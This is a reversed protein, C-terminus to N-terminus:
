PHDIIYQKIAQATLAVGVVSKDVHVVASTGEQARTVTLVNATNDTVLMIEDDILVRYDPVAPLLSGDLVTIATTSPLVGSPMNVLTETYNYLEEAM